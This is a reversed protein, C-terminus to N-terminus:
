EGFCLSKKYKLPEGVLLDMSQASNVIREAMSFFPSGGLRSYSDMDYGLILYVYYTLVTTLNSTITNENFELIEFEKYNFVFSNDRFNFLTTNYSSNYVPRRSQVQIEASFLDDEVKSIIININCEIRESESYSLDTWKRNNIFDSASKELTTFVSKNSGQIMDSNVKLNCNLEQSFINCGIAVTLFLTLLFKKCIIIM